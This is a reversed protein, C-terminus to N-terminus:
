QGTANLVMSSFGDAVGVLWLNGQPVVTGGEIVDDVLEEHRPNPDPSSVISWQTGDWHMVLHTIKEPGFADTDGFAWVDGFAVM